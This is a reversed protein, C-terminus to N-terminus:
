GLLRFGQGAVEEVGTETEERLTWSKKSAQRPVDLERAARSGPIPVLGSPGVLYDDLEPIPPLNHRTRMENFTLVSGRVLNAEVQNRYDPDSPSAPEAYIVLKEGARAFHPGLWATLSESFLVLNPNVKNAVFHYDAIAASARNAGEVRGMVIPNVHFGQDIGDTTIKKSNVFDLERPTQNIKQVSEILGDVILPENYKEMGRYMNKIWGILQARQRDSLFPRQNTGTVMDPHRGITILLGPWIGNTFTHRQAETIAEDAAILRSQAQLPSLVSMPNAPDPYYFYIMDDGSISWVETTGTPQVRWASYLGGKHLPTVWSPPLPWLQMQRPTGDPNREGPRPRVIWWFAAGCIELVWFTVLKLSTATMLPNPDDFVDLLPHQPLVELSDAYAKLHEPLHDKPVRRSSAIRNGRQHRRAIRIPQAACRQAIVKVVAYVRGVNHKLQEVHHNAINNYAVEGWSGAYHSGIVQRPTPGDAKQGLSMLYAGQREAEALVTDLFSM